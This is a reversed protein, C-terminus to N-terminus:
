RIELSNNFKKILRKRELNQSQAQSQNGRSTIGAVTVNLNTYYDRKGKWVNEKTAFAAQKPLEITTSQKVREFKILEFVYHNRVDGVKVILGPLGHFKYPGDALAIERTFWAEFIRGAFVITAKQCNYGAIVSKENGIKWKTTPFVDFYRYTKTGIVDYCYMMNGPRDKIIKFGFRSYPISSIKDILTQTNNQNDPIDAMSNQISDSLFTGQSEFRSTSSSIALRMLDTKEASDTSDPRYTLRYM